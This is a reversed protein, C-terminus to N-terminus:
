KVWLVGAFNDRFWIPALLLASMGVDNDSVERDCLGIGKNSGPQTGVVIGIIEEGLITDTGLELLFLAASVEPPWKSSGTKEAITLARGPGTEDVTSNSGKVSMNTGRSLIVGPLIGSQYKNLEQISAM